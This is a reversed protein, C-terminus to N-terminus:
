FLACLLAPCKGEQGLFFWDGLHCDFDELATDCVLDCYECYESPSFAWCTCDLPNYQMTIVHMSLLTHPTSRPPLQPIQVMPPAVCRRCVLLCSLTMHSLSLGRSLNYKIFDHSWVSGSMGSPDSLPCRGLRLRPPRSALTLSYATDALCRSPVGRLHTTLHHCSVRVFLAVVPSAKILAVAYLSACNCGQRVVMFV